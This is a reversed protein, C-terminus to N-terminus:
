DDLWAMLVMAALILLALFLSPTEGLAILLIAVSVAGRFGAGALQRIAQRGTVREVRKNDM